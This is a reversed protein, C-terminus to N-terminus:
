AASGPFDGGLVDLLHICAAHWHRRVTRESVGLVEASEAQTWGQYFVLGFVEREEGPLGDVAQHFAAWRDLDAAADAPGPSDDAPDPGHRDRGPSPSSAHNAGLGHPGRYHRALDLLERRIQTAALAFFGRVSDPRVEQLARLLRLVANNLVDGTEEWRAVAPFRRLMKRALWELRGAILRFLEERASDDGARMRDIWSHLQSTNFPEGM